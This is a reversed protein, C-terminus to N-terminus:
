FCAFGVLEDDGHLTWGGSRVPLNRVHVAPDCRHLGFVGLHRGQNVAADVLFLGQRGREGVIGQAQGIHDDHVDLAIVELLGEAVATLAVGVDGGQFLAEFDDALSDVRIAKDQDFGGDGRPGRFVDGVRDHLLGKLLAADCRLGEQGVGILPNHRAPFVDGGDPVKPTDAAADVFGCTCPNGFKERLDEIDFFVRQGDQVAGDFAFGALDNLIGVPCRDQGKQVFPAEKGLAVTHVEDLDDLGDLDARRVGVHDEGAGSDAAVAQGLVPAQADPGVVLEHAKVVVNEFDRRQGDVDVVRARQMRSFEDAVGQAVHSFDDGGRLNHDQAGGVALIHAIRAVAARFGEHALERLHPGFDADMVGIHLVPPLQLLLFSVGCGAMGPGAKEPVLVFEHLGADFFVDLGGELAGIGHNEGHAVLGVQLEVGVLDDFHGAAGHGDDVTEADQVVGGDAAVELQAAFDLAEAASM